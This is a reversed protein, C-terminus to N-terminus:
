YAGIGSQSHSYARLRYIKGSPAMKADLERALFSCSRGFDGIFPVIAINKTQHEDAEKEDPRM